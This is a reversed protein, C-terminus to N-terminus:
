RKFKESLYNLRDRYLADNRTMRRATDTSIKGGHVLDALHHDMSIMGTEAGIELLSYIQKFNGTRILNSIAPTNTLMEVVVARGKRQRLPVLTQSIVAKLVMSLQRCLSDQENAPYMGIIRDLAGVTDACHLTSLVLHGTEAANIAARMTDLERMEGVLIVDPDERLAERLSDAFSKVNVGIERQHILSKKNKHLYEIPDEVTIIHHHYNENIVDILAALSTSKGSGTPGSFLILGSPLSALELIDKPLGLEAISRNVSELKRIAMSYGYNESYTNIRFRNDDLTVSSDLSREKQLTSLEDNDFIVSLLNDIDKKSWFKSAAQKLSGDLRGMPVSESSLHYDSYGEQICSELIERLCENVTM